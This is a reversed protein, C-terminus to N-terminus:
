RARDVWPERRLRELGRKVLESVSQHSINMLAATEALTLGHLYRLRIACYQKAPLMVAAAVALRALEAREAEEPPPPRRETLHDELGSLERDRSHDRKARRQDRYMSVATRAVLTRLWARQDQEGGARVADPCDLADLMAQQSVDSDDFRATGRSLHHALERVIPAFRAAVAQVDIATSEKRDASM